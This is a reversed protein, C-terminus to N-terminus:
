SQITSIRADPDPLFQQEAHSAEASEAGHADGRANKVEVFPVAPKGYQFRNAAAHLILSQVKVLGHGPYGPFHNEGGVSGHRGAVVAKVRFQHLLM